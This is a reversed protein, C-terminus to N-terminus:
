KLLNRQKKGILKFQSVTKTFTELNEDKNYICSLQKM